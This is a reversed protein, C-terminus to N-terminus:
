LQATALSPTMKVPHTQRRLPVAWPSSTPLSIKEKISILARDAKSPQLFSLQTIVLMSCDSHEKASSGSKKVKLLKEYRTQLSDYWVEPNERPHNM